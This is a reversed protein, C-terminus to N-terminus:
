MAKLLRAHWARIAAMGDAGASRATAAQGATANATGAGTCYDPVKWHAEPLTEGPEYTIIDLDMQTFFVWKVPRGTEVDAYYTIFPVGAQDSEGKTWVNTKYPGVMVGQAVLKAAPEDVLWTPRVLGYKVDVAHCAKTKPTYYFSMGDKREYDWLTGKGKKELDQSTIINLNRGGTWDYFLHVLSKGSPSTQVSMAHFREPWIPPTPAVALALCLPLCLPLM